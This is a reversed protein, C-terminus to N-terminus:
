QTHYEFSPNDPTQQDVGFGIIHRTNWIRITSVDISKFINFALCYNQTVISYVLACYIHEFSWYFTRLLSFRVLRLLVVCNDSM